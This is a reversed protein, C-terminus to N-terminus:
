EEKKEEEKADGEPAPRAAKKAEGDDAKEEAKEEPAPAPRTAKKEGDAPAEEAEKADAGEDKPAPRAGKKEGDGEGDGEAEDGEKKAPRRKLMRNENQELIVFEVRRNAAKGEDTENDGIPKTEGYGKPALRSEDIGLSVLREVVAKARDESLKMNKDDDGSADTHGGVEVKTVDPARELATAINKLLENSASRITARGSAFQIKDMIVLKDAAYYVLAECGNNRLPDIDDQAPDDPCQDRYDPVRDGDKDPCGFATEPGAEKQCEDVENVIGDEDDDPCGKASAQGTRMPCADEADPIGDDDNDLDPCGDEDEFEDFDEASAGEETDTPCADDADAIGDGDNDTDPCGDEDQWGDMDEPMDVCSVGDLSGELDDAIGDKDTDKTGGIILNVGATWEWSMFADGHNEWNEGGLSLMWRLDTRVALSDGIPLMLGPGANGLFDLDTGTGQPLALEGNDNISKVWAGLGAVFLVNIPRDAWIRGVMNVRPTAVFYPFPDPTGVATQGMQFGLDAELLMTEAFWYGVRPSFTPAPGIVELRDPMSVGAALGLDIAGEQAVAVQPALLMLPISILSKM